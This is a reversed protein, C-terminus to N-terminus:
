SRRAAPSPRNLAHIIALGKMILDPDAVDILDTERHVLRGLGGTAVVRPMSGTEDAFRRITHEVGGVFGYFLGAQIAARTDTGLVTGPDALEVDPLQATAGTLADAATQFGVNIAGARFSGRGDIYDYTTATGFDIVLTPGGYLHWAATADAVRDAGVARPNALAINIGTRVGPGVVLPEIGFLKVVGGRFAHMVKPVVSSVVVGEVDQRRAGTMALFRRLKLAYEDSSGGGDTTIRYKGVVTGGDLFGVAIKTNGIDVAVLM